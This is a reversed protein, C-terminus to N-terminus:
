HCSAKGADVSCSTFGLQACDVYHVGDLCYAALTGQCQELFAAGGCPPASKCGPGAPMMECRQATRGCDTVIEHGDGACFRVLDGDCRSATCSAGLVPTAVSCKFDGGGDPECTTQDFDCDDAATVTLGGPSLNSCKIALNGRCENRCGLEGIVAADPWAAKLATCGQRAAAVFRAYAANGYPATMWHTWCAQRSTTPMCAVAAVCAEELMSGPVADPYGPLPSVPVPDVVLPRRVPTERRVYVFTHSGEHRYQNVVYFALYSTEDYPLLWGLEATKGCVADTVCPTEPFLVEIVSGDAMLDAFRAPGLKLLYAWQQHVGAEKALTGPGLPIAWPAAGAVIQAAVVNAGDQSAAVMGAHTLFPFGGHNHMAPPWQGPPACARLPAGPATAGIPQDIQCIQRATGGACFGTFTRGDKTQWESPVCFGSSDHLGFMALYERTALNYTYTDSSRGPDTSHNLGVVWDGRALVSAFLQARDASPNSFYGGEPALERVTRFGFNQLPGEKIGAAIVVARGGSEHLGILEGGQWDDALVIDLPGWSQGRDHSTYATHGVGGSVSWGPAGPLLPHNVFLRSAKQRVLLRVESGAITADLVSPVLEWRVQPNIGRHDFVQGEFVTTTNSRLPTPLDDSSGGDGGCAPVLALTM